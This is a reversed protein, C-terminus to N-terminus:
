ERGGVKQGVSTGRLNRKGLWARAILALTILPIGIAVAAVPYAAYRVGLKVVNEIVCLIVYLAYGFGLDPSTESPVLKYLLGLTAVAIGVLVCDVFRELRPSLLSLVDDVPAPDQRKLPRLHTIENRRLCADFLNFHFTVLGGPPAPSMSSMLVIVRDMDDHSSRMPLAQIVAGEAALKANNMSYCPGCTPQVCLPYHSVSPTPINVCGISSCIYRESNGSWGDLYGAAMDVDDTGKVSSLAAFHIQPLTKKCGDVVASVFYAYDVPSFAPVTTHAM